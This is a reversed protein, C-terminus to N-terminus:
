PRVTPQLWGKARGPTHGSAALPRRAVRTGGSSCRLWSWGGARCEVAMCGPVISAHRRAAGARSDPRRERCPQRQAPHRGAVARLRLDRTRERVGRGHVRELAQADQDDLVVRDVPQHGVARQLQFAGTGIEGVVAVFGDRADCVGALRTAVDHQQVDLHGADVAVLRCAPQVLGVRRQRQEALRRARHGAILISAQAGAHAAADDLRDLALREHAQHPLV